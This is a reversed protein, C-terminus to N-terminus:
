QAIIHYIVGGVMDALYLEGDEGEGFSSLSIGTAQAVQAMQWTGSSQSIGWINASCYDGFLYVGKM